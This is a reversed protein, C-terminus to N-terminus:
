ELEKGCEDCFRADAENVEGCEYNKFKPLARGCSKCFNASVDNSCNCAPCKSAPAGTKFGAAVAAAVDRMADKTGDAMYTVVDKGVPAIENATYRSISVMFAFNCIMGGFALLPVGIFGCWFLKPPEAGGFAMFFDVLAIVLFLLGMGLVLPGVVRLVKRIERHAENDIKM